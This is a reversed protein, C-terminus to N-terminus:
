QVDELQREIAMALFDQLSIEQEIAACKAARKLRRSVKGSISVLVDDDETNEGQHHGSEEPMNWREHARKVAAKHEM